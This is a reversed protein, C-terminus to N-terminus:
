FGFALGFRLTNSLPNRTLGSGSPVLYAFNITAFSYKVGVGLTAYKRDGQSKPEYFYGARFFFQDEYAYEAGISGTYASNGFSNFWSSAVSRNYYEAMKASDQGVPVSPVLLKNIELGFSVKNSENFVKTYNAGVGLNAPIYDKETASKRYGIKGGLNSAVAGFSWGEGEKNLGNYYLGIDTSFTKGSQYSVGNTVAGAALNSYIYRFAVGMSLKSSLKRSYGLDIALENPNSKGLMNGNYDTIQMNGLNFYRVSATLAQNDDLKHYGAATLQYIDNYGADKMWPTYTMGLGSQKENFPTKALNYFSSSADPATAIGLEGMGGARADPSIRLFPVSTSVINISKGNQAVAPITLGLSLALAITKFSPINKM